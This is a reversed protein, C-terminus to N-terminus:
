IHYIIYSRSLEIFSYSTFGEAILTLNLEFVRELEMNTINGTSVLLLQPPRRAVLFSDVFDSDKTVIIRGESIAVNIINEDSTSNKEPLDLTHIADHGTHTILWALRRPLQADILFKV